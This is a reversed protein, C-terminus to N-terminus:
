VIASFGSVVVPTTSVSGRPVMGMDVAMRCSLLPSESLLLMADVGRDVSLLCCDSGLKSSVHLLLNLRCVDRFLVLVSFPIDRCVLRVSRNRLLFCSLAAM